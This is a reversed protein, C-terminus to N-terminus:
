TGKRTRVRRPTLPTAPMEYAERFPTAPVVPLEAVATKRRLAWTVAPLEALVMKKKRQLSPSPRQVGHWASNGEMEAMMGAARTTTTTDMEVLQHPSPSSYSYSPSTCEMEVVQVPPGCKMTDDEKDEEDDYEDDSTGLDEPDYMKYIPPAM